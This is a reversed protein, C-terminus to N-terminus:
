EEDPLEFLWLQPKNAPINSNLIDVIKQATSDFSNHLQFAVNIKKYKVSLNHIGGSRIGPNNKYIVTDKIGKVINLISDISSTRLIGECIREPKKAPKEYYSNQEKTFVYNKGKVRFTPQMSGFGSGLGVINFYLKFSDIETLPIQEAILSSDTLKISTQITTPTNCGFFVFLGTFCILNVNM